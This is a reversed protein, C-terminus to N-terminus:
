GNVKNVSTCWAAGSLFKAESVCFLGFARCFYKTRRISIPFILRRQFRRLVQQQPLLSWKGAYSALARRLDCRKRTACNPVTTARLEKGTQEFIPRFSDVFFYPPLSTSWTAVFVLLPIRLL